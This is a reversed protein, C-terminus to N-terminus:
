VVLCSESSNPSAGHGNAKTVLEGILAHQKMVLQTLMDVKSALEMVENGPTLAATAVTTAEKLSNELAAPGFAEEKILDKVAAMPSMEESASNRCKSVTSRRTGGKIIMYSNVIAKHFHPKDDTFTTLVNKLDSRTISLLACRSVARVTYDLPKLPEFVDQFGLLTGLKDTRGRMADKKNVRSQKPKSSSGIRGGPM